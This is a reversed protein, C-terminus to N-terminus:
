CKRENFWIVDVSKIRNVFIDYSFHPVIQLSRMSGLKTNSFIKNKDQDPIFTDMNKMNGILVILGQYYTHNFSKLENSDKNKETEVVIGISELKKKYSVLAYLGPKIRYINDDQQVIRRISAFPTKTKWSCSEILFTERYLQGLTAICGLREQTEEVAQRQTM